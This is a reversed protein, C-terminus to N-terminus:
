MFHEENAIPILKVGMDSYDGSSLWVDINVRIEFELLTSSIGYRAGDEIEIDNTRDWVTIISSDAETIDFEVTVSDTFGDATKIQYYRVGEYSYVEGVNWPLDLEEASEWASWTVGDDGYRVLIVPKKEANVQVNVVYGIMSAIVIGAILLALLVLPVGTLMKKTRIRGVTHSIERAKRSNLINDIETEVNEM